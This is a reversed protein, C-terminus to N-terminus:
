HKGLPNKIVTDYGHYEIQDYIFKRHVRCELGCKQSNCRNCEFFCGPCEESLCDCLDTGTSVHIGNEDYLAGPPRRVTSPPNIKRSLKKRERISTEPNFNGLFKEAELRKTLSDKALAAQRRTTYATPQPATSKKAMAVRTDKRRSPIMEDDSSSMTTDSESSM